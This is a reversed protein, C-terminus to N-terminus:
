RVDMANDLLTQFHKASYSVGVVERPEYISYTMRMVVTHVAPLRLAEQLFTTVTDFSYGIAAVQVGHMHAVEFLRQWTGRGHRKYTKNEFEDIIIANGAIEMGRVATKVASLDVNKQWATDNGSHMTKFHQLLATKGISNRGVILSVQGLQPILDEYKM